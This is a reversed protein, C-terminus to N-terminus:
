QLAPTVGVVFYCFVLLETDLYFTFQVCAVPDNCFYDEILIIGSM